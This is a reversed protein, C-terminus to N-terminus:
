KKHTEFLFRKTTGELAFMKTTSRACRGSQPDRRSLVAASKTTGEFMQRPKLAAVVAECFGIGEYSSERKKNYKSHVERMAPGEEYSRERLAAWVVSM